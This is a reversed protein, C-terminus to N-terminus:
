SSLNVPKRTSLFKLITRSIEDQGWKEYLKVSFSYDLIHIGTFDINLSNQVDSIDSMIVELTLHRLLMQGFISRFVLLTQSLLISM